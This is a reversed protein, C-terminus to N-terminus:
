IWLLNLLLNRILWSLFLSIGMASMGHSIACQECDADSLKLWVQIQHYVRLGHFFAARPSPYCSSPLRALVNWKSFTLRSSTSFLLMLINPIINEVLTPVWVTSCILLLLYSSITRDLRLFISGAQVGGEGLAANKWPTRTYWWM